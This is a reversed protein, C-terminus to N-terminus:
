DALLVGQDWEGAYVQGDTVIFAGQGHPQDQKFYGVFRDGNAYSY